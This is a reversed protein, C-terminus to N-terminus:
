DSFESGVPVFLPDVETIQDSEEVADEARSFRFRIKCLPLSEETFVLTPPLQRSILRFGVDLVVDCPQFSTFLDDDL